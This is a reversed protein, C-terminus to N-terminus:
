ENEPARTRFLIRFSFILLAIVAAAILVVTLLSPWGQSFPLKAEGKFLAMNEQTTDIGMARIENKVFIDEDTFQNAELFGTGVNKGSEDYVIASGDWHINNSVDISVSNAFKSGDLIFTGDKTVLRYKVPFEIGNNMVTELVEGEGKLSYEPDGAGYRNITMEFKSGKTVKGEPPPFCYIMYQLEKDPHLNLWIYKGLGSQKGNFMSTINNLLSLYVTSVQGNAWQRDIWGTGGFYNSLSDDLTLAGYTKLQTYSFYLTGAGGACPACGGPANLLPPREADLDMTIGQSKNFADVWNSELSFKGASNMRFNFRWGKPMDLATLSFVSDSVINYDGRFIKFPSYSWVNNKGVGSSIFYFTTSGMPLKLSKRLDPPYMDMRFFYNMYSATEGASDVFTGYIWFWDINGQEFQFSTHLAPDEFPELRYYGIDSNPAAMMMFLMQQDSVAGIKSEMFNLKNKDYPELFTSKSRIYNFREPLLKRFSLFPMSKYNGPAMVTEKPDKLEPARKWNLLYVIGVLLLLYFVPKLLKM